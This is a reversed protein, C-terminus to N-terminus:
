WLVGRSEEEVGRSFEEEMRATSRTAQDCISSGRGRDEEVIKRRGTSRGKCPMSAEETLTGKATKSCTGGKGKEGM